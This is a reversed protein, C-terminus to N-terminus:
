GSVDGRVVGFFKKTIKCKCFPPFYLNGTQVKRVGTDIIAFCGWEALSSKGLILNLFRGSSCHKLAVQRGSFLLRSVEGAASPLPLAALMLTGIKQEVFKM